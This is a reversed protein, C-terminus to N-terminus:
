RNGRARQADLYRQIYEDSRTSDTDSGPKGDPRGEDAWGRLVAAVYNWNRANARAAINIAERIWQEPYTDLADRLVDSIAPTLTGINREYETFVSRPKRIDTEAPYTEARDVRKLDPHASEIARVVADSNLFYLTEHTDRRVALLTGRAVAKELAKSVCGELEPGSSNLMAATTRDSLLDSQRISAPFLRKQHMFWIARLTVKLEDLDSIEELLGSLLPNPVPTSKFGTPFPNSKARVQDQNLPDITDTM